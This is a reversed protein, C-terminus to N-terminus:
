GGAILMMFTVSDGDKLLGKEFDQAKIYDRDNIVVQISHDLNGTKDLLGHAAASGFRGIMTDVLDKISRKPCEFVNEKGILEVLLSHLEGGVPRPM